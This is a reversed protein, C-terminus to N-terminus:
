AIRVPVGNMDRTLIGGGDGDSNPLEEVPFGERQLSERLADVRGQDPFHLAYETMGTADPNRRADPSVGWANVGIHHHYGDEALFLAGPYGDTTIAMGLAGHFFRRAQDLAGVRLHVHGMRTGPPPPASVGAAEEALRRLDLPLTAMAVKGDEWPWGERPRDAYLEVGNGEPDSLYLAESVRHDSAGALPTRHDALHLLARALSPRDPLRLALHFLGPTGAFPRPAEPDSMLRLLPPGGGPALLLDGDEPDASPAGEMGLVETYFARVRAPDRVRLTVPGLELSSPSPNAPEDM